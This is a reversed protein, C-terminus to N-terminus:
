FGSEAVEIFEFPIKLLNNYQQGTEFSDDDGEEYHWKVLFNKITANQKFAKLLEFVLKSSATNFYELQFNFEVNEIDCNVAWELLPRYFINPNEPLSRGQMQLIGTREFLVRPTDATPKIALTEM